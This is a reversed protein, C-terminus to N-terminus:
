VRQKAPKVEPVTNFVNNLSHLRVFDGYASNDSNGDLFAMSSLFGMDQPIMGFIKNDSLDLIQLYQLKVLQIPITGSFLNSRLRLFTLNRLNEGIWKPIQGEFKNEGLDLVILHQCFKLELPLQGKLSNNNLKLIRLLNLNGISSSIAGSLNNHAMNVVVLANPFCHPINGSFLNNSLDVYEISQPLHPIGGEFLNNNFFLVNLNTLHEMSLPLGGRMHNYSLDIFSLSQLNWFWHPVMEAIETNSLVIRIIQSQNQLWLPFYPGLKCNPLFLYEVQFPPILNMNMTLNLYNPGLILWKLNSLGTLHAESVEGTFNNKNLCLTELSTLNGITTPLMGNLNNYSLVLEKLNPMKSVWGTLNGILSTNLLWFIELKDLTDNPLKNVVMRIDEGINVNWIYLETLNKLNHLSPMPGKLYHEGLALFNLSTLNDLQSPIQGVFSCSLLELTTLTTLQGIWDPIRSNFENGDIPLTKLSTFNLGIISTPITTLNNDGFYLSELLPLSNLTQVWEKSDQFNVGYM